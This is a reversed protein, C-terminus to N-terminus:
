NTEKAPPQSGNSPTESPTKLIDLIGLLPISVWDPRHGLEYGLEYVAKSLVFAELLTKFEGRSEPLFVANGATERYSRVYTLAVWWYWYQCWAELRSFDEARVALRNGGHNVSRGLLATFAAYHFSRIMGAVDRLVSRKIRRDTVSRSPEGEFDIILFDKGTYLVQGLHFDGHVRFRQGTIRTSTVAQFRALIDPQRALVQQALVRQDDPLAKMRKALKQLVRFADSRMSQYISRQYTPSFPEPTFAPDTQEVALAAHLEATREGLIRASELYTGISERALLPVEKGILDAISAPLDPPTRVDGDATLVQELYQGLADLTYQWGTGQNPVLRQITALTMPEGKRRRYELFGVTTPSHPFKQKESLYRGIELDPNVGQEMRRFLKMIYKDGFVVSTNSQESKGLTPTPGPDGIEDALNVLPVAVLKGEVGAYSTSRTAATLLASCFAPDWMADYLVGPADGAIRAVVAHPLDALVRDGDSGRAVAFPLLYVEPETDLFQVELMTAYVSTEWGAGTALEPVEDWVPIPIVEKIEVERISQNKGGFWRRQTLFRPLIAELSEKNTGKLYRSLPGRIVIEPFETPMTTLGLVAPRQPELAFWTFGHPGLMVAYPNKGIVPFEVRGFLEHPVLGQFQELPLEAHQTFRSLNAIVLLTEDEYRRIFALIKPNDPLLFEITGRGFAKYRKRLDIIRKMWWLLSNPNNQQAEVNVAEYHYEPDIIIPLYLKQPNARSFGANRDCSWQMPTRVGDRDGLYINDGMGIEDGYYLVPTGPLSFLLGNMLEIRRRNNGLLPALRRRIGLNIRAQSDAAYARYMYDREEDTVMELTLEDHNRLFLCWQCSDPIGPTQALIDIIPFRDETRIAMFMRPMLPFHFATHCEDGDGFYAITDEPWQNAEALFMRGPFKEDVHKRLAKLFAHTEPLNECSTGEREYLYPIADLRMGDVGMEFWYDLLPFIADWVAPNDYNLDPQHSYFRHWYYEKAVPDYAWNSTEFDKFIIRADKFKEPTDSWVYFDREKSGKPARRARQFWPHQDSTHNIVLETIVRIGRKHAERLFEKFDDLTGYQQHVTTYDAIDYGDDKLPSPYFPLIWVATIGLDYLYDLKSTLGRFDGNGDAVSDCFSKVPAEYIIADKYWLPDTSLSVTGDTNM